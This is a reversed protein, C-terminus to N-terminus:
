LEDITIVGDQLARVLLATKTPAPRGVRTYKERIRSIHTSVTAVTVHLCAAVEAKSETMLWMRLIEIERDSLRVPASPPAALVSRVRAPGSIPSPGLASTM